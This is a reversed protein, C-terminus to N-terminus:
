TIGLIREQVAYIPSRRDLDTVLSLCCAWRGHQLDAQRPIKRCVGTRDESAGSRSLPPTTPFSNPPLNINAASRGSVSRRLPATWNIKPAIPRQQHCHVGVMGRESVLRPSGCTSVWSGQRHGVLSSWVFRTKQYTPFIQNLELEKFDSALLLGWRNTYVYRTMADTPCNVHTCAVYRLNM